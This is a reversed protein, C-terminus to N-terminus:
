GRTGMQVKRQENLARRQAAAEARSTKKPKENKANFVKILTFLRNLHWREVEWPIQYSVIWYYILESTITERSIAGKKPENFWTATMKRDIYANIANINELSLKEFVEPPFDPTLIMAKVYGMIEEDTKEGKGLFAKEFESEWKSLSILSHELELDFDESVFEQKDEDYSESLRVTIKLV